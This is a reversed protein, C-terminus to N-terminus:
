HHQYWGVGRINNWADTQHCLFCQEVSANAQGTITRDMMEFHMMFHSPPAQHCQVCDTSRSSPHLYTAVRWTDVNHCSKCERGFLTRHRDSNVHCGSCDLSARTGASLPRGVLPGGALDAGSGDLLVRIQAVAHRFGAVSPTARGGEFGRTHGARLLAAHDMNIPRRDRGQHEVHCGACQGINSHFATAPRPLVDPAATAHCTLCSVAEVGRLPTHCAECQSGLFDHAASLAGPSVAATWGPLEASGSRHLAVPLGIAAAAGLLGVILYAISTRTM